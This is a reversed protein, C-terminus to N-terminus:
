ISNNNNNKKKQYAEILFNALNGKNMSVVMNEQQHYHCVVKTTWVRYNLRTLKSKCQLPPSRKIPPFKSINFCIVGIIDYPIGRFISGSSFIGELLVLFYDELTFHWIMAECAFCVEHYFSITHPPKIFVDIM